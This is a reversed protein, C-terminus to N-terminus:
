EIKIGLSPIIQGWRALESRYYDAFDDGFKDGIDLGLTKWHKRVGESKMAPILAAVLKDTAAKPVDPHVFVGYWLAIDMDYGLEKFTPVDPLLASRATTTVALPRLSGDQIKALVTGVDPVAMTIQGKAVDEIAPGFGKYPVHTFTVGAIKALLAAAIAPSSGAGASGYTMPNPRSKALAVLESVTKVSTTKPDIVLVLSMSAALGIPKVATKSDFPMEKLIHPNICLTGMTGLWITHGDPTAALMATASVLGSGGSRNSVVVSQGLSKTMEDAIVRPMIDSTSGPTGPTIFVISKSPFGQAQAAFAPALAAGLTTTLVSRRNLM